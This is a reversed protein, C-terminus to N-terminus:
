KSLAQKEKKDPDVSDTIWKMATAAWDPDSASDIYREGSKVGTVMAIQKAQGATVPNDVVVVSRALGNERAYAQGAKMYMQGKSDLPSLFRVDAFICFGDKQNDVIPKFEMLWAAIESAEIIGSLTLKLGYDTEEIRYM